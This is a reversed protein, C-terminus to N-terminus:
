FYMGFFTLYGRNGHVDRNTRKKVENCNVLIKKEYKSVMLYREFTKPEYIHQDPNNMLYDIDVWTVRMIIDLMDCSIKPYKTITYEYRNQVVELCQLIIDDYEEMLEDFMQVVLNVYTEERKGSVVREEIKHNGQFV